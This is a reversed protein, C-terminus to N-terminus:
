RRRCPAPGSSLTPSQGDAPFILQGACESDHPENSLGFAIRDENAYKRAIEGWINAFIENSPGGQGIIQGQWRAYNHLQYTLSTHKGPM